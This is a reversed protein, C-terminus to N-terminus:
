CAVLKRDSINNTRKYYIPSPGHKGLLNTARGGGGGGDFFNFNLLM